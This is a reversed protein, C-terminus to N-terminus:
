SLFKYYITRPVLRALNKLLNNWFGPVSIVRGIKLDRLSIAVVEEPSMWRIIGRNKHLKSNDYGMKEHFDTRTLGPCLTQVKIGTKLLELHLSETFANIFAKTGSYTANRPSAAFAGISSVNIITGKGRELMNPIAAHVLKIIALVHVKVMAEQDKIDEEHFKKETAFGANNVLIDLNKTAKVKQVLKDLDDDDSLEIIIVEVNVGYKKSIKDAVSKILQKRRGTIILDYGESAFKKAFAKGIGSTAGTIFAIQKKDSM